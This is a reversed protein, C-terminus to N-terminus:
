LHGCCDGLLSYLTKLCANRQNSRRFGMWWGRREMIRTHGSLDDIVLGDVFLTKINIIVLHKQIVLHKWNFSVHRIVSAFGDLDAFLANFRTM